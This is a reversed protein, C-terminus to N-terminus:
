TILHRFWNSEIQQQIKLFKRAQKASCRGRNDICDMNVLEAVVEESPPIALKPEKALKAFWEDSSEQSAFLPMDVYFALYNNTVARAWYVPNTVSHWQAHDSVSWAKRREMHNDLAFAQCAWILEMGKGQGRDTEFTVCNDGCWYGSVSTTSWVVASCDLTLAPNTEYLDREVWDNHAVIAWEKRVGEEQKDILREVEVQSLLKM